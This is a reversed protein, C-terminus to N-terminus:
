QCSNLSDCPILWYVDDGESTWGILDSKKISQVKWWAWGDACKPGDLIRMSNGPAIYGIISYNTGAGERVRQDLPPDTAVYAYQGVKLRSPLAGSCDNTSSPDTVIDFKNRVYGSKDGVAFYYAYDADDPNIKILLEGNSDVAYEEWATLRSYITESPTYLLLRVNENPIFGYLYFSEINEIYYMRSENPVFVNVKYEVDGSNGSFLFTYTGPPDDVNPEYRFYAFPIRAVTAEETKSTATYIHGGPLEVRININNDSWWGCMVITIPALWEAKTDSNVEDIAPYSFEAEECPGEGGQGEEQGGGHPGFAVEELVDSPTTKNANRISFIISPPNNREPVNPAQPSKTKTPKVVPSQPTLPPDNACASL